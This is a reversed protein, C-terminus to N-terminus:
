AAPTEFRPVPTQGDLPWTFRLLTGKGPQSTVAVSGGLAVCAVRVAALGAGRGSIETPGVATSVGDTFLAEVLDQHRDAPLGMARARDAVQEWAIGRGDDEVEIVLRGDLEHARLSITGAPHKGIEVRESPPELGHDVANRLVHGFVRWFPLWRQRELRVRDSEIKIHVDGRGLRRALQRAQAALRELRVDVPELRWSQIFGLLEVPSAGGRLLREVAELDQVHLEIVDRRSAGLIRLLKGHLEHWARRLAEGAAVHEGGVVASAPLCDELEHCCTAIHSLGFVAANGKLTHLDLRFNADVSGGSRLLDLGTEVSQVLLEADALFEFFGAKDRALHELVCVLDRGMAQARQREIEATIDSLVVLAQRLDAGEMLPKIQLRVAHGGITLRKPMQDLSVEIPFGSEMLNSWGLRLWQGAIPDVAGISDWLKQGPRYSGLWSAAVASREAVLTGTHDMGLFGQEATDLLMAMDRNRRSIRSALWLVVLVAVAVGALSIAAAVMSLQRVQGRVRATRLGVQITGIVKDASVVPYSAVVVGAGRRDIRRSTVLGAEAARAARAEAAGRYAMLRGNSALALSFEFDPDTAVFGLADGVAKDDDFAISPGAVNVMLAGLSSAKDSLGDDMLRRQTIVTYTAQCVVAVVLPVLCGAVLGLLFRRPRGADRITPAPAGMLTARM